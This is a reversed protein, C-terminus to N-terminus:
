IKNSNIRKQSEIQNFLMNILEKKNIPKPLYNDFGAEMLREKDGKMAYATQAIFPIYRYEKWKSKIENMLKIGDWPAPLNIDFLMVDFFEGKDYAEEIIRLSEDGDEALSNIGINELMKKLVLRNMRDDEVIFIKIKEDDKRDELSVVKDPIAVAQGDVEDIVEPQFYIKVTTGKGKVSEIVIDGKMLDTLRKALPLGLGAGQYNRSYGLSEQRFAEFIHNLYSKDIGVGTDKISVFIRKDKQDYDTVVNIFGKETYKVANDIIDSFVKTLSNPDAMSKPIENLILNFKLGKENAKFKFLESVKLMTENIDCLTLKVELDNAEIRSIDIINNLLNLLRDGSQQIGSAYEYLEQNEMLSLETLLLNSFGIIGNLPTRIEHSMNSLFANKLYNADEAKKLAKKLDVDIETRKKLEEKIDKTQDTVGSKIKDEFDKFKFKAANSKETELNLKIRYNKSITKIRYFLLIILLIAFAFVIIANKSLFSSNAISEKNLAAVLNQKALLIDTQKQATKGQNDMLVSDQYAKYRNYESLASFAERHMNSSSYVQNLLDYYKLVFPNDIGLDDTISISECARRAENIKNDLILGEVKHTIANVLLENNSISRAIEIASDFSKNGAEKDSALILNGIRLHNNGLEYQKNSTQYILQAQQYYTIASAFKEKSDYIKGLKLYIKALLNIDEEQQAKLLAEKLYSIAKDYVKLSYAAKSLKLLYPIDNTEKSYLELYTQLAEKYLEADYYFDGLKHTTSKIIDDNALKEALHKAMFIYVAGDLYRGYETYSYGIILNSEIELLPDEWQNALSYTFKGIKLSLSPVSDLKENAFRILSNANKTTEAKKFLAQLSDSTVEQSLVIFSSVSFLIAIIFRLSKSSM